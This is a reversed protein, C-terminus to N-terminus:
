GTPRPTQKHQPSPLCSPAGPARMRRARHWASPSPRAPQLTSAQIAVAVRGGGLRWGVAVGRTPSCWKPTPRYPTATLTMPRHGCGTGAQQPNRRRTLRTPPRTPRSQRAGVRPRRVSTQWPRTLWRAPWRRHPRAPAAWAAATAASFAPWQSAPCRRAKRSRRMGPRSAPRGPVACPGARRAAPPATAPPWLGGAVTVGAGHALHTLTHRNNIYGATAGAQRDPEFRIQQARRSGILVDDREVWGHVELAQQGQTSIEVTWFGPRAQARDPDPGPSTPAIALLLLSGNLGQAVARAWVVGAQVKGMPGLSASQGLALRLPALGLAPPALVQVALLAADAANTPLWSEVFSDRQIGPPVRVTFRGPQGPQVLRQGHVRSRPPLNGAAVVVAVRADATLDALAQEAM